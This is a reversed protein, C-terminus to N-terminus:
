PPCNAANASPYDTCAQRLLRELAGNQYGPRVAYISSWHDIAEGWLGQSAADAGAVYEAALRREETLTPDNPQSALARDLYQVAQRLLGVDGNARAILQEAAKPYAQQLKPGLAGDQYDPQLANVPEWYAVAEAWDGRAAAETALIFGQALHRERILAQDAPRLALARDLYGLAQRLANPDANATAIQQRALQTYAQFLQEEVHARRFDPDQARLQTLLAIAAQWDGAQVHDQAELWTNELTQQKELTKIRQQVDRFGPWRSEIQRLQSLANDLDGQQQAALADTYLRDLEEQQQSREIGAVATPDGPEATLLNQFTEQAGLWDGASLREQGRLRLSEVLLEHQRDAQAPRVYRDYAITFAAVGVVLVTVTLLLLLAIRLFPTPRGREVAVKEDQGFTAMLDLRVALDRISQEEPYLEALRNLKTAADAADGRAARKMAAQYLPHEDFPPKGEPTETNDTM